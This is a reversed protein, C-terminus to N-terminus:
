VNDYYSKKPTIDPSLTFLLPYSMTSDFDSLLVSKVSDEKKEKLAMFELKENSVSIIGDREFDGLNVGKEEKTEKEEEM